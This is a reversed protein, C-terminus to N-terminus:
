GPQGDIRPRVLIPAYVTSFIAFGVCWLGGAVTVCSVYWDAGGVTAGAVRVVAATAVLAFALVIVRALELRRGTHGLSVRAMMGLTLTGIAGVTFAHLAASPSILGAAAVAALAFGVVVWGYGVCLVWLLPVRWVRRDYWGALRVGQSVAALLAAVGGAVGAPWLADLVAFAVISAYGVREVTPWQRPAAGSLARQTFFPVVRGGIVAVTLVILDVGLYLGIRATGQTYGLVEGHVLANALVLALLLPLVVLNRAQRRRLLPVALAGTLLPLFLLDTGAVVAHPVEDAHFPLLRGAVWLAVLVALPAGRLTQVDTWNRVATLLFGAIVAVTYGFVMEHGHWVAPPYYTGIGAGVTYHLVWLGLLVVAAAGAMLFFPRFGLAFLALGGSPPERHVTDVPDDAM